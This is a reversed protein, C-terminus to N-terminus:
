CILRNADVNFGAANLEKVLEFRWAGADDFPKFLVGAYDSPLEFNPVQRHLVLVHARGLKGLFFGLELVVNQRARPRVSEPKADSQYGVDDPSFLVIAFPVEAHGIFKEIVTRGKDPQEHLIIPDLGLKELVRAVTTKMKDDHGHVVFVQNSINKMFTMSKDQQSVEHPKLELEELFLFIQSKL